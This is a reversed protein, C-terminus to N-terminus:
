KLEIMKWYGGKDPGVREIKKNKQLIRLNREISRESIGIQEAMEPITVESNLILMQIIKVSMKVLTKRDTM